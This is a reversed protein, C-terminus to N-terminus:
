IDDIRRELFRIVRSKACLFCFFELLKDQRKRLIRMSNKKGDENQPRQELLIRQQNVINQLNGANRVAETTETDM